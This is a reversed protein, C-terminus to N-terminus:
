PAHRVPNPGRHDGRIPARDGPPKGTATPEGAWGERGAAAGATAGDDVM